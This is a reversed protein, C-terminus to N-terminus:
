FRTSCVAVDSAHRLALVDEIELDPFRAALSWPPLTFPPQASEHAQARAVLAAAIAALEDGRPASV